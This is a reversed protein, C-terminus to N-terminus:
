RSDFGCGEARYHLTEVLQAVAHGRSFSSLLEVGVLWFTCDGLLGKGEV